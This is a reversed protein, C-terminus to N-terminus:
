THGMITLSVDKPAWEQGWLRQEGGEGRTGGRSPMKHRGQGQASHGAGVEGTM